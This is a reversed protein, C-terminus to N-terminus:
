LHPRRFEREIAQLQELLEPPLPPEDSPDPRRLPPLPVDGGVPKWDSSTRRHVRDCNPM